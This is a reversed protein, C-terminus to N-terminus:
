FNTAYSFKDEVFDHVTTEHWTKYNFTDTQFQCHLGVIELAKNAAQGRLHPSVLANARHKQASALYTFTLFNKRFM